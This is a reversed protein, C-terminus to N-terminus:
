EGLVGLDDEDGDVGSRGPVLVEDYGGVESADALDAVLIIHAADAGALAVEFDVGSAVVEFVLEDHLVGGALGDPCEADDEVVVLAVVFGSQFLDGVLDAVLHLRFGGRGAGEDCGCLLADTSAEDSWAGYSGAGVPDCPAQGREAGVGGWGFASNKKAPSSLLAM